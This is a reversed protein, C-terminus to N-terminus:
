RQNMYKLFIKLASEESIFRSKVAPWMLVNESSFTDPFGKKKLKLLRHLTCHDRYAINNVMDKAKFFECQEIVVPIDKENSISSLVSTRHNGSVVYFKKSNNHELFYGTINGMKRDQFKKPDYEHKEISILLDKLKIFVDKIDSDSRNGFFTTDTQNPVPATHLWPLFIATSEFQSLKDCKIGYLDALSKPQKNSKYYDFIHSQRFEIDRNENIQKCTLVYPNEDRTFPVRGLNAVQDPSIYYRELNM